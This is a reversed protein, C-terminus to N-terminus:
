RVSINPFSQYQHAQARVACNTTSVINLTPKVLRKAAFQLAKQKKIGTHLESLPWIAKTKGTQLLEFVRKMM